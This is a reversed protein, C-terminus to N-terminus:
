LYTLTKCALFLYPLVPNYMKFIVHKNFIFINFFCNEFIYSNFIDSEDSGVCGGYGGTLLSPSNFDFNLIDLQLFITKKLLFVGLIFFAIIGCNPEQLESEDM